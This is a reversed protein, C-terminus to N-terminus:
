HRGNGKDKGYKNLTEQYQWLVRKMSPIFNPDIDSSALYNELSLQSYILSTVGVWGWTKDGYKNEYLTNLNKLAEAIESHTKLDAKKAKFEKIDIIKM